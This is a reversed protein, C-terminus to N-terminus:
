KKRPKQNIVGKKDSNLVCFQQQTRKKHGKSFRRYIFHHNQSLLEILKMISRNNKHEIKRLQDVGAEGDSPCANERHF